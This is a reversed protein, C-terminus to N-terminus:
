IDIIVTTDSFCIGNACVVNNDNGYLIMLTTNEDVLKEGSGLSQESNIM